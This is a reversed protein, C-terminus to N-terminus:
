LMAQRRFLKDRGMSITLIDSMKPHGRYSPRAIRAHLNHSTLKQGANCLSNANPTVQAKNSPKSSSTARKRGTSTSSNADSAPTASPRAFPALATSIRSGPIVTPQVWGRYRVLHGPTDGTPSVLHCAICQREYRAYILARPPPGSPVVRKRSTAQQACRRHSKWLTQIIAFSRISLRVSGSTISCVIAPQAIIWTATVVPGNREATQVLPSRRQRQDTDSVTGFARDQDLKRPLALGNDQCPSATM